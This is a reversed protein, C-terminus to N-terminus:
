MLIFDVLEQATSFTLVPKNKIKAHDDHLSGEVTIGSALSLWSQARKISHETKELEPLAIYDESVDREYGPVVPTLIVVYDLKPETIKLEMRGRPDYSFDMKCGELTAVFTGKGAPTCKWGCDTLRPGLLMQVEQFMKIKVAAIAASQADTLKKLEGKKKALETVAGLM